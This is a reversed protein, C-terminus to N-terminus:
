HLVSRQLRWALCRSSSGCSFRERATAVPSRASSSSASCTPWGASSSSSSDACSSRCNRSRRSRAACERGGFTPADLFNGTKSRGQTESGFANIPNPVLGAKRERLRARDLIPAKRAESAPEFGAPLMSIKYFAAGNAARASHESVLKEEETACRSARHASYQATESLAGPNLGCELRSLEALHRLLQAQGRGRLVVASRAQNGRQS